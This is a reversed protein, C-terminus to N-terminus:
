TKKVHNAIVNRDLNYFSVNENFNILIRLEDDVLQQQPITYKISSPDDGSNLFFITYEM